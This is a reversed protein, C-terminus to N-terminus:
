RHRTRGGQRSNYFFFDSFQIAYKIQAWSNGGDSTKVLNGNSMLGVGENSDIFHFKIFYADAVLALREKTSSVRQWTKAGDFTKFLNGNSFSAIGTQSDIMIAEILRGDFIRETFQSSEWSEGADPTFYIGSRTLALWHERDLFSINQIIGPAPMIKESWTIGEDTAFYIAPYLVSKLNDSLYEPLYNTTPDTAEIPFYRGGAIILNDADKTYKTLLTMGKGQLPNVINQWDKQSDPKLYLDDGLLLCEKGSESIDFSFITSNSKGSFSAGWQKNIPDYVWLKSASSIWSKNDLRFYIKSRVTEEPFEAIKHLTKVDKHKCGLLAITVLFIGVIRKSMNSYVSSLYQPRM